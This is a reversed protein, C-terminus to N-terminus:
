SHGKARRYDSPSLGTERHFLRTFHSFSSYGIDLAINTIPLTSELLLIKAHEIRLETLRQGPTKNTIKRFIRAMHPASLNAVAAMDARSINNQLNHRMYTEIRNVVSEYYRINLSSPPGKKTLTATNRQLSVLLRVILANALEKANFEGPSRVESILAQTDQLLFEPLNIVQETINDLNLDYNYFNVFFYAPAKQYCIRRRILGPSVIMSENPNLVFRKGDIFNEVKGRVVFYWQYTKHTHIPIKYDLGAENYVMNTIKIPYRDIKM